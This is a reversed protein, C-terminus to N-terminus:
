SGITSDHRHRNRENINRINDLIQAYTNSLNDIDTRKNVTNDTNTIHCMELFPLTSTKYSHDIIRTCEFNFRHDFEVCHKVLATTTEVLNVTAIETNTQDDQLLRELKNVNSKHGALRKNLNNKTMGIYSGDCDNCPIQYIVNSIEEKKVPHKVKTHLDNVTRHQKTTISINPYDKSLIKVIRQSLAPVYPIARYIIQEETTPQQLTNQLDNQSGGDRLIM